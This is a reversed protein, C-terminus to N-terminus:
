RGAKKGCASLIDLRVVQVSQLLQLPLSEPTREPAYKRLFRRMAETKEEESVDTCARCACIVSEYATLLKEPLICVGAAVVCFSCDPAHMLAEMKRGDRACHFYIASAGDWVYNLPIGYAGTASQVSLVGYLGTRLVARADSLPLAREGRRLSDTGYNLEAKGRPM